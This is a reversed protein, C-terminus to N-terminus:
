ISPGTYRTRLYINIYEALDEWDKQTPRFLSNVEIVGSSVPIRMHPSQMRRLNSIQLQSAAIRSKLESIQQILPLRANEAEMRAVAYTRGPRRTLRNKM